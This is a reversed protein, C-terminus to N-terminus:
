TTLKQSTSKFSKLNQKQKKSASGRLSNRIKLTQCKTSSSIMNMKFKQHSNIIDPLAPRNILLLLEEKEWKQTVKFERKNKAKSTDCFKILDECMQFMDQFKIFYFHGKNDELTASVSCNEQTKHISEKVADVKWNNNLFDQSLSLCILFALWFDSLKMNILIYDLVNETTITNIVKESYQMNFLKWKTFVNLSSQIGTTIIILQESEDGFQWIVYKHWYSVKINKWRLPLQQFWSKLNNLVLVAKLTATKKEEDESSKDASLDSTTLNNNINKSKFHKEGRKKM